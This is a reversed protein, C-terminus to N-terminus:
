SEGGQLDLREAVEAMAAEYDAQVQPDSVHLYTETSRLRAHGLLRQISTLPVRAEVLHRGFSHRLQHCTLWLGAKRCHAALRLQIATVSMRRGLRSVFLADDSVRPRVSLWASLASLAQASLYVVRERGGKGHIWLRPLSGNPQLYLDALSLNRIEGVRLGCRLMLLFVARDRANDIASFLTSLDEDQVDRPLRVGQRIFHRRPIVPNKPPDAWDLALFEYFARIAALRRNVTAVAHGQSQCHAIFRDVDLPSIAPPEKGAWTFFLRLDSRYHIHTSSSPSRRRLWKDFRDLEVLM